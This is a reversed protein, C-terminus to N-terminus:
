NKLTPDPVLRNYSPLNRLFPTVGNEEQIDWEFLPFSNSNLTAQHVQYRPDYFQGTIKEMPCEEARNFELVHLFSSVQSDSDMCPIGNDLTFTTIPLKDGKKTYRILFM